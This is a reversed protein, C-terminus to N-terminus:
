LRHLREPMHPRGPKLEFQAAGPEEGVLLTRADEPRSEMGIRCLRKGSEGRLDLISASRDAQPAFIAGELRVHRQRPQAAAIWPRTRSRNQRSRRPERCGRVAETHHPRCMKVKVLAPKM